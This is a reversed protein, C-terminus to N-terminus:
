STKKKSPEVKKADQRKKWSAHQDKLYIEALGRQELPFKKSEPYRNLSIKGVMMIMYKGHEGLAFPPVYRDRLVPEEDEHAFSLLEEEQVM